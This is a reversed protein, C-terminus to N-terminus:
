SRLLRDLEPGPATSAIAVAESPAVNRLIQGGLDRLTTVLAGQPDLEFHLECGRAGLEESVRAANEVERWPEGSPTPFRMVQTNPRWKGEKLSM